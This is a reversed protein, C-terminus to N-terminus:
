ANFSNHLSPGRVQEAAGRLPRKPLPSPQDDASRSGQEKEETRLSQSLLSRQSNQEIDLPSVARAHALSPDTIPKEAVQASLKAGKAIHLDQRPVLAPSRFSEERIVSADAHQAEV